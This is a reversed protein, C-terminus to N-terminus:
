LDELTEKVKDLNTLLQTSVYTNRKNAKLDFEHLFMEYACIGESSCRDDEYVKLQIEPLYFLDPGEFFPRDYWCQTKKCEYMPGSFVKNDRIGYYYVYNTLPNNDPNFNKRFSLYQLKDPAIVSYKDGSVKAVEAKVFELDVDSVTYRPNTSSIIEGDDVKKFADAEVQPFREKWKGIWRSFKHQTELGAPLKANNQQFSKYTNISAIGVVLLVLIFFIIKLKLPYAKLM